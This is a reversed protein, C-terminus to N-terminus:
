CRFFCVLDQETLNILFNCLSWCFAPLEGLRTSEKTGTTLPIEEMIESAVEVDKRGVNPNNSQSKIKLSTVSSLLSKVVAGAQSKGALM